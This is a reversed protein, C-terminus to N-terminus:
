GKALEYGGKILISAQRANVAIYYPYEIMVIHLSKNNTEFARNCYNEATTLQTFKSGNNIIETTTM